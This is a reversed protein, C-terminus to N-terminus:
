APELCTVGLFVRAWYTGPPFLVELEGRIYRALAEAHDRAFSKIRKIAEIRRWKNKPPHDGVGTPTIPPTIPPHDEDVGTPTIPSPSREVAGGRM